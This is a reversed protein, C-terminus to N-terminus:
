MSTLIANEQYMQKEDTEPIQFPNFNSINILVLYKNIHFTTILNHCYIYANFQMFYKKDNANSDDVDLIFYHRNHIEM